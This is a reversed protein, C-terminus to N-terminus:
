AAEARALGREEIELVDGVRGVRLVVFEFPVSPAMALECLLRGHAREAPPNNGEDCRVAFAGEATPGVLAGQQWLARLFGDMALTLASRTAHDNPEFVVWQLGREAARLIMMLLRRVPLFRADPDSSLTRAGLIRLGRGPETRIM